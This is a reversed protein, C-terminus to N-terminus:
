QHRDGNVLFELAAVPTLVYLGLAEQAVRFDRVNATIAGAGVNLACDIVLDDGADPSSPRWTFYIPAFTTISLLRGLVPEIRKWRSESLRRSLVDLYEYAIATSVYAQLLNGLWADVILGAAGGTKTLGEFVVNADVVVRM